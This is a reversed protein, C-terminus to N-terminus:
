EGLGVADYITLIAKSPGGKDRFLAAEYAVWPKKAKAGELEEKVKAEDTSFFSSFANAHKAMNIKEVTKFKARTELYNVIADLRKDALNEDGKKLTMKKELPYPKDSWAAISLKLSKPNPVIGKVIDDLKTKDAASLVAKNKAFDIALEQKEVTDFTPATPNPVDGTAAPGAPQAAYLALPSITCLGCFYLSTICMRKLLRKM